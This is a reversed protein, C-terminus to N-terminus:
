AERESADEHQEMGSAGSPGGRRSAWVFVAAVLGGLVVLAVLKYLRTSILLALGGFLACFTYYALVIRRQSWGMDALRFHLHGRDGRGIPQRRRVRAVIQWAVDMIPIGLVLLLTAVKGGAVISLTGLAFGLFYSGGSGMFVRAPHFNYPLFGLTSGLLALPLLAVSHQGERVMHVTLVLAAIATVGAALGDLGDLFNVTNMAGMIWFLTLPVTIYWPFWIQRNTLPNNVVEIFVLFLMAIGAAAAQVVFQPWSPLERADDWLGAAFVFIAGLVVGLLRTTEKPDNTAPRVGEPLLTIVLVAAMFAAFLAAGGLRSVRGVHKRRGGPVDAIGLRLGLQGALPTLALSVLFSTAFVVGFAM